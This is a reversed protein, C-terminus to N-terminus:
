ETVKKAFRVRLEYSERLESYEDDNLEIIYQRRDSKNQRSLQLNTISEETISKVFKNNQVIADDSVVLKNAKILGHVRVTTVNLLAATQAITFTKM